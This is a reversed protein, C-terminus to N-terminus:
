ESQKALKDWLHVSVNIPCILDWGSGFGDSLSSPRQILLIKVTQNNFDIKKKNGKLDRSGSMEIDDNDENEGITSKEKNQRYIYKNWLSDCRALHDPIHVFLEQDQKQSLTETQPEMDQDAEENSKTLPSALPHKISLSLVMDQPLADPRRIKSSIRNWADKSSTCTNSDDVRISNRIVITALPGKIEFRAM